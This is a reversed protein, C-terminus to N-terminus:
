NLKNKGCLKNKFNEYFIDRDNLYDFWFTKYQETWNYIFKVGWKRSVIDEKDLHQILLIDTVLNFNTVQREWKYNFEIFMIM